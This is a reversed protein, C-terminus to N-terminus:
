ICSCFRRGSWGYSCYHLAYGRKGRLIDHVDQWNSSKEKGTLYGKKRQDLIKLHENSLKFTEERKYDEEFLTYIAKIRKDDADALYTAKQYQWKGNLSTEYL